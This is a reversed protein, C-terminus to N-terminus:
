NSKPTYLRYKRKIEIKDGGFNVLIGVDKKTITLYNVLQLEHAVQLKQVAKVEIIVCDEVLLDIKFDGIITGKYNVQIPVQLEVKLGREQLEIILAKEYLSELYGQVLNGRVCYISDLIKKVIDEANM